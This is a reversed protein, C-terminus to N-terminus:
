PPIIVDQMFKKCVPRIEKALTASFMMVQKEHPTMRFVEQVDRRMDSSLLISYTLPFNSFYNAELQTRTKTVGHYSFCFLFSWGPMYIYASWTLVQFSHCMDPTEILARVPCIPWNYVYNQRGTRLVNLYNKTIILNFRFMNVLRHFRLLVGAKNLNM